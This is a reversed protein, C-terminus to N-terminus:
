PNYIAAMKKPILILLSSGYSYIFFNTKVLDKDLRTQQLIYDTTVICTDQEQMHYFVGMANFGNDIGPDIAIVLNRQTQAAHIDSAAFLLLCAMFSLISILRHIPRYNIM